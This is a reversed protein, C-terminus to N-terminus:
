IQKWYLNHWYECNYKIVYIYIHIRAEGEVRIASNSYYGMLIDFYFKGM